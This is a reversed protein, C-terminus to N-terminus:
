PSWCFTIVTRGAFSSFQTEDLPFFIHAKPYLYLGASKSTWSPLLLFLLQLPSRPTTQGPCHSWERLRVFCPLQPIYHLLGMRQRPCRPNSIDPVSWHLHRISLCICSDSAGSPSVGFVRSASQRDQNFMLSLTLCQAPRSHTEPSAESDRGRPQEKSARFDFNCGQLLTQTVLPLEEPFGTQKNTKKELKKKEM